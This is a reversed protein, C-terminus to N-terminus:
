QRSVVLRRSVRYHFYCFWQLFPNTLVDVGGSVIVHRCGFMKRAFAKLCCVPSMYALSPNDFPPITATAAAMALATEAARDDKPTCTRLRGSEGGRTQCSIRSDDVAAGVAFQPM